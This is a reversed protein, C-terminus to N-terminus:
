GNILVPQGTRASEMAALSVKLAILGDEGTTRPTGDKRLTDAFHGAQTGLLEQITVEWDALEEPEKGNLSIKMRSFRELEIFANSAVMYEHSFGPSGDPLGWCETYTAVDGSAFEVVIVGTDPALEKLHALRETGEALTATRAYVKVPDSEFLYRWIDVHHCMVDIFPGGNGHMDHMAPNPRVSAASALQCYVPRKVDGDNLLRHLYTFWKRFRHQFGVALKVKAEQAARIMREGDSLTLALPKECFVHKGSEAAAVVVDAHLGAPVCVYVVDVDERRVVEAYDGTWEAAGFEEARERALETNADCITRLAFLPVENIATMHRRGMNGAGVVAVGLADNQM